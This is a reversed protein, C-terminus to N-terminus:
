SGGIFKLSKFKVSWPERNLVLKYPLHAFQVLKSLMSFAGSAGQPMDGTGQQQRAAPLALLIAQWVICLFSDMEEELNAQRDFVFTLALASM